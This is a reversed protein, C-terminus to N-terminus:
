KFAQALKAFDFTFGFRGKVDAENILETRNAYTMSIPFNVGNMVPITLKAQAKYTPTTQTMWNGEGSFSLVLPARGSLKSEPTLQFQGDAAFRGGRKAKPCIHCQMYDFSSNISLNVRRLAGYDLIAQIRYEDDGNGKRLKSQFNLSFQPARRIKEIAKTAEKQFQVISDIESGIIGEIEKRNEDTLFAETAAVSPQNGFAMAEFSNVSSATLPLSIGFHSGLSKYLYDELRHTIRNYAPGASSLATAVDRVHGRNRPHSADRRDWLLFKAGVLTARQTSSAGSQDPYEAGLTISVRRWDRNALYFAPDLPDHHLAAAYLSYASATVSFSSNRPESSKSSLGALNVAASALDSASSQDVLSTANGSLSPSEAQNTNGRQNVKAKLVGQIQCDVWEPFSATGTCDAAKAPYVWLCWLSFFLSAHLFQNWRKSM